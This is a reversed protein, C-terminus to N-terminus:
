RKINQLLISTLLDWFTRGKLIKQVIRCKGFSFFEVNKRLFLKEIGAQPFLPKRTKDLM